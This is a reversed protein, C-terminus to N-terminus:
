QLFCLLTCLASKIKNQTKFQNEKKKQLFLNVKVDFAMMDGEISRVINLSFVIDCKGLSYSTFAIDLLLMQSFPWLDAAKFLSLSGCFNEHILVSCRQHPESYVLAKLSWRPLEQYSKSGPSELGSGASERCLEGKGWGAEMIVHFPPPIRFAKLCIHWRWLAERSPLQCSASTRDAWRIKARAEIHDRFSCVMSVAVYSWSKRILRQSNTFDLLGRAPGECVPKMTWEFHSHKKKMMHTRIGSFNQPFLSSILGVLYATLEWHWSQQFLCHEGTMCTRPWSILNTHSISRSDLTVFSPDADTNM